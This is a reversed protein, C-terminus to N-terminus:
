SANDKEMSATTDEESLSYNAEDQLPSAADINHCAEQYRARIHQCARQYRKVVTHYRLELMDAITKLDNGSLVLLIIQCEEQSLSQALQLICVSKEKYDFDKECAIDRDLIYALQVQMSNQRKKARQKDILYNKGTAVLWAVLENDPLNQKHHEFCRTWAEQVAELLEEQNPAYAQLKRCVEQYLKPIDREGDNSM